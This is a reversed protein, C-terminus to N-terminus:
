ATFYGATLDKIIADIPHGSVTIPGRWPTGLALLLAVSLGVVISLSGVLLAARRPARITLVSANIMLAIGSVVLTIVYLAPLERSAAALRARRDTTVADLSALLETSTPTGLALRAAQTRM